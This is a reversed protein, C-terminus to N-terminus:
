DLKERQSRLYLFWQEFFSFMGKFPTEIIFDFLLLVINVQSVGLTISKGIQIFPMFFFDSFLTIFNDKEPGYSYKNATQHIRYALFSMVAMFFLFIAQSVVNFRLSSLIFVIGGFGICFAVLWLIAFLVEFVPNYKKRGKEFTVKSTIFNDTDFLIKQIAKWIRESNEKGPTKITLGILVMLIPPILTNFAISGWQVQGYRFSEYTGEISLAIIAKTVLIFIVSRIIARKVKDFIGTYKEQCVRMVEAGLRDNDRVLNENDGRHARLVDELIFFPPAQKKIYSYVLDKLPHNLSEQIKKYGNLFNDAIKELNEEKVEGFFQIFLHYRLFALDEKAFARRIAIFVQVDRTEEDLGVLEIKDHYLQYIFNSMLEKDRSPDLLGEIDASMLDLIWDNLTVKSVKHKKIILDQLKLFLDISQEVKNIITEPVSSDPFYRAWALERILPSAIDPGKNTLLLRRKLIREVASRLLVEDERYDIANRLKEYWTAVEAVMPNVTIKKDHIAQRKRDFGGILIQSIHTLNGMHM